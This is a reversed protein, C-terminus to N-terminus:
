FNNKEEENIQKLICYLVYQTINMKKKAALEKIKYKHEKSIRITLRDKEM